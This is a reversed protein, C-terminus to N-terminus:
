LYRLVTDVLRKTFGDYPPYFYDVFRSAYSRHLVSRENSFARFGAEGHGRGVGSEGTGGFPLEPNAFHLLVENICTSGTSTQALVTEAAAEEESFLYISLPDPRDNIIQLADEMSRVSLVPLVPGFIEEQMIRTDPSVETLVTPSVYNSEADRQGGIAVTAGAEVADDLLGVVHQWHDLRIMRAYDDSDKRDAPSEGYFQRITESLRRVFADHVSEDVLVYDPAICTQGANTFKGWAVREAARNLTATSDVITPSKGGLELTISTPHEAAAKMVLRGVRTSGTFYVHDFPKDLLLQAVESNGSRVAVEHEEFVEALLSRLVANTHPTFESPKLVACNGAAIATVLPGLTLLLPYNQEALSTSM